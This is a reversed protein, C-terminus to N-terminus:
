LIYKKCTKKVYKTRFSSSEGDLKLVVNSRAYKKGSKFHNHTFVVKENKKM